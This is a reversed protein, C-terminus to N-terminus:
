LYFQQQQTCDCSLNTVALVTSTLCGLIGSVATDNHMTITSLLPYSVPAPLDFEDEKETEDESPYEDYTLLLLDDTELYPLHATATNGLDEEIITSLIPQRISPKDYVQDWHVQYWEDGYNYTESKPEYDYYYDWEGYFDDDSVSTVKIIIGILLTMIPPTYICSRIAPLLQLVTTSLLSEARIHRRHYPESDNKLAVQINHTTILLLCRTGPYRRYNANMTTEVHVVTKIIALCVVYMVIHDPM